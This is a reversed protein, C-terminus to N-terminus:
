SQLWIVGDPVITTRQQLPTNYDRAYAIIHNHQIHYSLTLITSNEILGLWDSMIMACGDDIYDIL